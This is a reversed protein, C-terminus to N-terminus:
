SFDIPFDEDLGEGEQRHALYLERERLSLQQQVATFLTPPEAAAADQCRCRADFGQADTSKKSYLLFVSRSHQRLVEASSICDGLLGCSALLRESETATLPLEGVLQSDLAAMLAIHTM